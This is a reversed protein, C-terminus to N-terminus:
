RIRIITLKDELQQQVNEQLLSFLEDLTKPLNEIEKVITEVQNITTKITAKLIKAKAIYQKITQALGKIGGKQIAIEETLFYAKIINEMLKSRSDITNYFTSGMAFPAGQQTPSPLTPPIGNPLGTKITAVYYKTVAKAWDSASRIRGADIEVLLPQTFTGEFNIPM